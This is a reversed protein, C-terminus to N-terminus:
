VHSRPAPAARGRRPHAGADPDGRPGHLVDLRHAVAVAELQSRCGLKRFIGRIHNRVTAEALGLQLAIGRAPVGEALLALVQRQRASLPRGLDRGVRLPAGADQCRELGQPHTEV